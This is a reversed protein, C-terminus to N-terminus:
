VTATPQSSFHRWLWYTPGPVANYLPVPQYGAQAAALGFKVGEDGPLDLVLVARQSADPLWEPVTPVELAASPAPEIHMCAFLVPKAWPSWLGASPAWTEYIIEKTIM